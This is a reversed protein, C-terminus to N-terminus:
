GDCFEGKATREYVALVARERELQARQIEVHVRADELGVVAVASSFPRERMERERDAVYAELREITGRQAKATAAWAAVCAAASM